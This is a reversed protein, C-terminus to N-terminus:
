KLRNIAFEARAVTGYMKSPSAVPRAPPVPKEVFAALEDLLGALRGAAAADKRRLADNASAIEERLVLIFGRADQYEEPQAFRGDKISGAYEAAAKRLLATAATMFDDGDRDQRRAAAARDDIAANAGALAAMIATRDAGSTALEVPLGLTDKFPRLGIEALRPAVEEYEESLPHAFHQKAHETDGAEVLDRGARLHGKMAFLRALVETRPSLGAFAERAGEEGGEGGEGSESAARPMEHRAEGQEGGASSEAALRLPSRAATAGAKGAAGGAPSAPVGLAQTAIAATGAGALLYAGVGTWIRTKKKKDTM